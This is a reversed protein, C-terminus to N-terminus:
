EDARGTWLPVGRRREHWANTLRRLEALFGLAALRDAQITAVLATAGEAGPEFAVGDLGIGTREAIAHATALVMERVAADSLPAPDGARLRVTSSEM